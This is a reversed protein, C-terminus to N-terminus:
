SVVSYKQGYVRDYALMDIKDSFATLEGDQPATDLFPYEMTYIPHEKWTKNLFRTYANQPLGTHEIVMSMLYFSSLHTTPLPERTEFNTYVFYDTTINDIRDYINDNDIGALANCGDLLPHHDGFFVLVTPRERSDM